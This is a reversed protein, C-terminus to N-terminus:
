RIKVHKHTYRKPERKTTGCVGSVASILLLAPACITFLSTRIKLSFACAIVVLILILALTSLMGCALGSKGHLGAALRAGAAASVFLCALAIVPAFRLPDALSLAPICILALLATGLLLSFVTGTLVSAAFSREKKPKPHAPPHNKM